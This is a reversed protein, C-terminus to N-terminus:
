DRRKRHVKRGLSTSNLKFFFKGLFDRPKSRIEGSTTLCRGLFVMIKKVWINLAISRKDYKGINHFNKIMISTDSEDNIKNELSAEANLNFFFFHIYVM